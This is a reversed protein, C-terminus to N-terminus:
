VHQWIPRGRMPFSLPRMTQASIALQQFAASYANALTVPDPTPATLAEFLHFVAQCAASALLDRLLTLGNVSHVATIINDFAGNPLKETHDQMDRYEDETHENM